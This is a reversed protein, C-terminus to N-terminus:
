RDSIVEDPVTGESISFGTFKGFLDDLFRVSAQAFLLRGMGRIHDNSSQSLVSGATVMMLDEAVSDSVGLFDSVRGVLNHWKMSVVVREANKRGEILDERVFKQKNEEDWEHLGHKPCEVMLYGGASDYMDILERGCECHLGM